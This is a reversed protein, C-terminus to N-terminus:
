RDTGHYTTSHPERGGNADSPELVSGLSPWGWRESTAKKEKPNGLLDWLHQEGAVFDCNRYIFPYSATLLGNRNQPSNM